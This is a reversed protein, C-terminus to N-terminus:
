KKVEWDCINSCSSSSKWMKAEVEKEEHWRRKWGEEVRGEEKMCGIKKEQTVDMRSNLFHEKLGKYDLQVQRLGIGLIGIM